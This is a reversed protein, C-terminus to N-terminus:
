PEIEARTKIDSCTSMGTLGRLKVEIVRDKRNALYLKSNTSTGDPYFLIPQSWNNSGLSDTAAEAEISQSRSDAESEGGAFTVGETLTKGLNSSVVTAAQEGAEIADDSMIWPQTIYNGTDQEYRFMYIRGSKMAKIRAQAFEARMIDGSKRLRQSELFGLMNPSALSAILIMVAVVILIEMLTLGHRARKARVAVSGSTVVGPHRTAKSNSSRICTM